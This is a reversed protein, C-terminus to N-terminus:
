GVGSARRASVMVVIGSSVSLARDSRNVFVEVIPNYGPRKKGSFFSSAGRLLDNLSLKPVERIKNWYECRANDDQDDDPAIYNQNEEEENETELVNRQNGEPLDRTIIDCCPLGHALTGFAVIFSGTKTGVSVQLTFVAQIPHKVQPPPPNLRVNKQLLYDQSGVRGHSWLPCFESISCGEEVQVTLYSFFNISTKPALDRNPTLYVRSYKLLDHVIETIPVFKLFGMNTPTYMFTSDKSSSTAEYVSLVPRLSVCLFYVVNNARTCTLCARHEWEDKRWIPVTMLLGRSTLVPPDGTMYEGIISAVVPMSQAATFISTHLESYPHWHRRWSENDNFRAPSEALIGGSNGPALDLSQSNDSDDKVYENWAFLTYDETLKMIEEQLRQFARPGEGYLLPMNIGFIGMLSYAQDEKRTTKREAAWQMRTAVNFEDLQATHLLVTIDIKTMKSIAKVMSAKTGIEIWDSTYFEVIQPAILEQLTWGRTFWKCAKLAVWDGPWRVEKSSV